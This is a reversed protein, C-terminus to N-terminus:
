RTYALARAMQSVADESASSMAEASKAQGARDGNFTNSFNNNQIVSKSVSGAAATMAATNGSVLSANAMISMDGALDGLADKLKSKGAEIGSVMLSIMDPMYEHFNSLPGDEPESFGLFDKIKTAIGSVADTVASIKEKIGDVISQIIDKGWQLAKEPLSTIWEIAANFGNVITDKIGIVTDGIVGWISQFVSVISNWITTFVNVINNWLDVFFNKVENWAGEWDGAFLAAFISFIDAIADIVTKFVAKINNWVGSFMTSITGGWTNWFSQLKGFVANAISSIISWITDLRNKIGTWVNSFANKLQSGHNEWFSQLGGFIDTAVKKIVNWVTTLVTKVVQWERTLRESIKGSNKTWYSTLGDWITTAVKKIGTWISTLFNKVTTWANLIKQRAAEADIGAKEFLSGILSNDGKMFKVFDEILLAILVIVAVIAIMTLNVSGLMGVVSKLFSLIKGANLAVFISAAVIGILKLLNEMGGLKEALLEIRTKLRQAYDMITNSVKVMMKAITQTIGMTSNLDDLFYGWSNRINLIADSISYDLNNFDSEIKDAAGMIASKLTEGTLVGQEALEYLKDSTVGLGNAITNIVEPAQNYLNKLVSSSVEGTQFVKAITSQLSTAESESKGATILLKQTVSAFEVAEDLPFLESNTQVLQAVTDAMDAYSTKTDNAAKLIKQQAEEEDALGKVAYNIKDNIGNFEETLSVIKTLSFGIGIAGLLKTATSKLSKISNEVKAESQSDVEYGLKFGIDRLTM